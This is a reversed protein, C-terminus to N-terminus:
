DDDGSIKVILEALEDENENKFIRIGKIWCPPNKVFEAPLESLPVIYTHRM